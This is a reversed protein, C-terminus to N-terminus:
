GRIKVQSSKILLLTGGLATEVGVRVEGVEVFYKLVAHKGIRM